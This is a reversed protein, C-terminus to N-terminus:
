ALVIDFRHLPLGSDDDMVPTTILTKRQDEPAKALDEDSKLLPDGAFYMQTTLSQAKEHAVKFHIHRARWGPTGLYKLEYAAPKITKFGYLGDKDTQTIGVGQFNPDLPAPNPDDPHTYRGNNNAQWIDVRAGALPNGDIDERM